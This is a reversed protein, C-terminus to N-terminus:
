KKMGELKKRLLENVIKPNGKGKTAKMSEGVLFGFLQTKGGLFEAVQGANTVLVQDVIGELAATDSVQLLGKREVIVRPSEKTKLIEEFVDKAIKGSITGDVIMNIMEALHAPTVPFEALLVNGSNVVRLVDGMTWNSALKYNEENKTKLNTIVGEFYDALPKEATLLDADYKPIKYDAVFRDRRATPDEPLTASMNEIWEKTVIVPILDPDPFYRYDHAEEKSRMPVAIGKGSDWLLTEQVVREGSEILEIQRGIEFEVAKEVFRFSNMNKVETKTGLKTEGKLRVSVNADCRLSGEEMNGDCIGLYTVLQRIKILYLYAEHPSRIDPESVIEILPVGCRNVDVLTDVDVDHISKGADEEMHIRTLGISKRAGDELEIEVVGGSCIPEEYQSIQYGKPLDPYFYNKRAFISRPAISCRTALGMRIIFDVHSRNLVPLVGPMGLCVPCVNSNPEAGFNTSCSCFAKSHTLMQAHVELGIVPEYTPNWPSM